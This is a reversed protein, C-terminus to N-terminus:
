NMTERLIALVESLTPLDASMEPAFLSRWAELHQAVVMMVGFDDTSSDESYSISLQIGGKLDVGKGGGPPADLDIAIDAEESDIISDSWPGEGLARRGLETCISGGERSWAHAISRATSGGGRIKLTSSVPDIGLHRCAEMFGDGDTNVSSWVGESRVIQNIGGQGDIGQHGLSESLTYKLPSTCSIWLDGEMEATKRFFEAVDDAHISVSSVGRLGLREGVISFLKPTISHSVPNGAVGWFSPAIRGEEGEESVDTMGLRVPLDNLIIRDTTGM